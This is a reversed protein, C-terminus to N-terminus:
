PSVSVVGGFANIELNWNTGIQFQQFSQYESLSYTYDGKSTDFFISYTESSNGLRQGDSLTPTPWKPSYDSGTLSITDVVSWELVIYSCYDDYVQYECDQVVEAYGSGTDVSYPTGCVEQSNPQPESEVSRIEQECSLIEAEAPIQDSWDRYEIPVLGEVAVTREWGVGVVTGAVDETRMSLFAFVSVAICVLVLIIILGVPFRKAKKIPAGAPIDRAEPAPMEDVQLTM